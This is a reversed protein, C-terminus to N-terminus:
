GPISSPPLSSTPDDILRHRRLFELVLAV